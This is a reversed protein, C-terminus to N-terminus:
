NYCGKRFWMKLNQYIILYELLFMYIGSNVLNKYDYNRNNEKSDFGIVKGVDDVVVLDSDFPHSNPHTLLTADAFHNRHYEAMKNFDVNLFVDGFILIFDEDIMSKLYYLSGATGLPKNPNEEYYSIKIGFKNGDKFYDKIKDGLHGIVIIIEKIDSKKFM